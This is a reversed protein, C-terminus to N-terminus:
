EEYETFDVNDIIWRKRPDVKDGMLTSVRREAKAADEIQVQLLTRSEPNMTTEWLQEPNMEGLGKYRQIMQGRRAQDLLWNIAQKFNTVEQRQEGKSVYAGQQLLGALTKGEPRQALLVRGDTDVLACAAVLLIRRQKAIITETM